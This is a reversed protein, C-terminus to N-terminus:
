LSSETQDTRSTPTPFPAQQTANSATTTTTTTATNARTLPTHATKTRAAGNTRRGALEIPSAKLDALRFHFLSSSVFTFLPLLPRALSSAQDKGKNPKPRGVDLEGNRM